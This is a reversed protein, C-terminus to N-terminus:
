WWCSAIRFGTVNEMM